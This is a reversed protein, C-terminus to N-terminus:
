KLATESDFPSFSLWANIAGTVAAGRTVHVRLYRALGGSPVTISRSQGAAATAAFFVEAAEVGSTLGSSSGIAAAHFLGVTLTGSAGALVTNINVNFWLNGGEGPSEALANGWGDTGAAGLDLAKGVGATGASGNISTADCLILKADQIAM